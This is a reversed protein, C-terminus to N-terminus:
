PTIVINNRWPLPSDNNSCSAFLAAKQNEIWFDGLGIKNGNLDTANATDTQDARAFYIIPDLFFSPVLPTAYDPSTAALAFTGQPTATRWFAFVTSGVAPDQVYYNTGDWKVRVPKSTAYTASSPRPDSTHFSAWNPYSMDAPAIIGATVAISANSTVTAPWAFYPDDGVWCKRIGYNISSVAKEHWADDPSTGVSRSRDSKIALRNLLEAFTVTLAM